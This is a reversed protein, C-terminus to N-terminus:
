PLVSPAHYINSVINIMGNFLSNMKYNADSQYEFGRKRGDNYQSKTSNRVWGTVIEIMTGEVFSSALYDRVVYEQM